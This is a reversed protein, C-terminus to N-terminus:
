YRFYGFSGNMLDFILFFAIVGVFIFLLGVLRVIWKEKEKILNDKEKLMRRYLMLEAMNSREKSTREFIGIEVGLAEAIDILTLIGPNDNKGAFIRSITAESVGSVDALETNSIGDRDRLEILDDIVTVAM